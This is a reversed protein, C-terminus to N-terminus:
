GGPRVQLRYRLQFQQREPVDDRSLREEQWDSWDYEHDAPVDNLLLTFIAHWSDGHPFTLLRDPAVKTLPVSGTM